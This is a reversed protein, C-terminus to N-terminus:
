FHLRLLICLSSTNFRLFAPVRWSDGSGSSGAYHILWHSSSVVFWEVSHWGAFLGWVHRLSSLEFDCVRAWYDLREAFYLHSFPCRLVVLSPGAELFPQGDFRRVLTLWDKAYVVEEYCRAFLCDIESGNCRSVFM